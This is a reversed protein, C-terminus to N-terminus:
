KRRRCVIRWTLGDADQEVAVVQLTDSGDVIEDDADVSTLATQLCRYVREEVDPGAGPMQSTATPERVAVFSTTTVTTARTMTSSNFSGAVARRHTLTRGLADITIALGAAISPLATM